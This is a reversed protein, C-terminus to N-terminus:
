CFFTKGRKEKISSWFQAFKSLLNSVVFVDTSKENHRWKVRRVFARDARHGNDFYNIPDVDGLPEAIIKSFTNFLLFLLCDIITEFRM